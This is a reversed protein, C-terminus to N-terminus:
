QTLEATKEELAIPTTATIPVVPRSQSQGQESWNSVWDPIAEAPMPRAIGFGQGMRCGLLTLLAEQEPTEVGEAIVLRDFAHALRVVSEVIERDEADGLMDQVFSQNIKLVDIPLRRFYALSAYGSGFDDLAFRVGLARCATLTQSTREIDSLASTELVELELCGPDCDGHEALLQELRQAFSPQLLHGNSINVSVPLKLGLRQWTALQTLAAAIVWEGIAIELDSGEVLPLFAGPLLLGEDPHPWRILAEVGIVERSVMNVKPQYYLVFGQGDLAQELHHRKLRQEQILRNQEADHLHYRNGGAEKAIYMAQDAHRLLTDASDVDPPSLVVGISASVRHAVGHSLIPTTAAALVRELLLHCDEARALDTFLLVFEDGGLRAVTDQARMLKRLRDAIGILVEDGVEHGHQDNIPKFNDLDLYCVAIFRESRRTGALAQELRDSLLRRNPLETLADYNALHDLEGEHAKIESIDSFVGIYNQVADAADHVVSISLLEAYLQGDQRRNWVEGRWSGQHTIADWMERYFAEDQRGSALINPDKGLVSAQEYGTITTFAPNTDIIRNEADTIIIAEFSHAFVKAALRLKQEAQKRETIDEFTGYVHTVGHNSRTEPYGRAFCQRTSGDRRRACLELAYPTGENIVANMATTLRAFDEPCFLRHHETFPPVGEAPVMQFIRFLEESWTVTNTEVELEWSGIHALQETRALMIQLHRREIDEQERETIDQVTGSLRVVQGQADLHPTCITIMWREQGDPRRIRLRLRYPEGRQAARNVAQDFADWDDPHIYRRHAEYSPAADKPDLGWIPFMGESWSVQGTSPDFNWSGLQATRQAWLLLREQEALHQNTRELAGIALAVRRQAQTQVAALLALLLSLTLGSLGIWTAIDNALAYEFWPAATVAVSWQRGGFEVWQIKRMSGNAEPSIQAPGSTFLRQQPELREGAYVDLRLGPQALDSQVPRLVDQMLDRMRLPSYVWGLLNARREAVSDHPADARYVPLFLVFGPQIDTADEQKLTVRASLAATAQDRARTAAEWRQPESGMDYGFDRLNRGSFREIYLVAAYFAREGEPHIQFQPFGERHVAAVRADKEDDPILLLFGIGQIGPYQDQLKLMEFYRRFREHTIWEPTDFLAAAGRLLQVNDQFREDILGAVKSALEGLEEERDQRVHEEAILWLGATLTLGVSLIVAPLLFPRLWSLRGLPPMASSTKM